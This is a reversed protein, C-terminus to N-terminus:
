KQKKISYSSVSILGLVIAVIIAITWTVGVFGILPQYMTILGFVSFIVVSIYQMIKQPLKKGLFLGVVLGLMDALFLGASCGLFVWIAKQPETAAFSMAALQTKDGLEAVFFTVAITIFKFSVAQNKEDIKEEEDKEFLTLFAFVLFAIGAVLAIYELPLYNGITRGIIVALANLLLGAALVGLIIDRVKYKRSMAIVLFQTKDGMEMIATLGFSKFFTLM